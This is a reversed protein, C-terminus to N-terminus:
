FITIQNPVDGYFEDLAFQIRSIKKTEIKIKNEM